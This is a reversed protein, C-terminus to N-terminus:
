LLSCIFNLQGYNSNDQIYKINIINECKIVDSNDCLPNKDVPKLCSSCGIIVLLQFSSRHSTHKTKRLAYLLPLQRIEVERLTKVM